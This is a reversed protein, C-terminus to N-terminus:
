IVELECPEMIEYPILWCTLDKLNYEWEVDFQVLISNPWPNPLSKMDYAVVTGTKPNADWEEQTAGFKIKDNNGNLKVRTGPIAESLEM